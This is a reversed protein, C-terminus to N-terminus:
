KSTILAQLGYEAAKKGLEGETECLLRNLYKGLFDGQHEQMLAEMDFDPVTEDTWEVILCGRKELEALMPESRLRLEACCKGTLKLLYMHQMGSKKIESEVKDCVSLETDQASVEVTLATYNRVANSVFEWYLSAKEGPEKTIKGRIYGKEGTEKRELPEFSGSYAIRDSIPFRTHIHGLAAYDFGQKEIVEKHLPISKDNSGPRINGHALLINIREADEIQLADYRAEPIQKVEYSLGFVQTNLEPFYVSDGQTSMLFTVNEPFEVDFFHSDPLLCDHNGAIMVVKTKTLQGLLYSVEKVDRLLPQGHFLDGPLLLLDVQEKECVTLVRRFAEWIEAKRVMGLPTGSEPEAGLHVDGMHIFRM